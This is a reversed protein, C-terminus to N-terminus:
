LSGKPDLSTSAHNCSAPDLDVDRNMCLEGDVYYIYVVYVCLQTCLNCQM